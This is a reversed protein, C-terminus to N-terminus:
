SQVPGLLAQINITGSVIVNEYIMKCILREEDAALAFAELV